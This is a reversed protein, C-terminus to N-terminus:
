DGDDGTALDRATTITIRTRCGRRQQRVAHRSMGLRGAQHNMMSVLRTKVARSINRWRSARTTARSSSSVTSCIKSRYGSTSRSLCGRGPTKWAKESVVVEDDLRVTGNRLENFVVYATMIKTLSAPELQQEPDRAALVRDSDIDILLYGSAGVTPPAPPQSAGLAAAFCLALVFIFTNRMTKDTRFSPM